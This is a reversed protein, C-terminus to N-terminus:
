RAPQDGTLIALIGVSGKGMHHWVDHTASPRCGPIIGRQKTSVINVPHISVRAKDRFAKGSEVAVHLPEGRFGRM